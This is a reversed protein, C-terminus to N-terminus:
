RNMMLINFIDEAAEDLMMEFVTDALEVAVEAQEEDYSM